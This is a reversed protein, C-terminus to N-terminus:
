SHWNFSRTGQLLEDHYGPLQRTADLGISKVTEIWLALKRRVQQPAKQIEKHASKTMEVRNIM